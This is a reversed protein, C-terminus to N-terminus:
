NTPGVGKKIVTDAHPVVNEWLDPPGWDKPKEYIMLFGSTGAM